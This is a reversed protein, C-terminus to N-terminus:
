LITKKEYIINKALEIRAVREKQEPLNDMRMMSERMDYRAWDAQLIDYEFKEREKRQLIALSEGKADPKGAPIRVVAYSEPETERIQFWQDQSLRSLFPYTKTAEVPFQRVTPIYTQPTYEGGPPIEGSLIKWGQKGEAATRMEGRSIWDLVTDESVGYRKAYEASSLWPMLSSLMTCSYGSLLPGLANGQGPLIADSIGYSLRLYYYKVKFGARSYEIGYFM